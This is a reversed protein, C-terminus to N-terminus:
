NAIAHVRWPDRWKIPCYYTHLVLLLLRQWEFHKNCTFHRQPVTASSPSRITAHSLHPLQSWVRQMPSLSTLEHAFVLLMYLQSARQFSAPSLCVLRNKDWLIRGRWISCSFSFAVWPFCEQQTSNPLPTPQLCLRGVEWVDVRCSLKKTHPVPDVPISCEARVWYLM